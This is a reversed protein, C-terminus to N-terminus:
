IKYFEKKLTFLSDWYNFTKGVQEWAHKSKEHQIIDCYKSCNEIFKEHFSDTNLFNRFDHFEISYQKSITFDINSLIDYEAGEIDFKILDFQKINYEKMIDEISITEIEINGILQSYDNENKFLSNGHQDEYIFYDINKNSLNHIAKNIFICGDPVDKIKPNPDVCIINNSLKKVEKYFNFNICGLDLVWGTNSILSVDISHEFINRITSM